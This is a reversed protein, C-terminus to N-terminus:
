QRLKKKIEALTQALRRFAAMNRRMESAPGAPTGLWVEGAPIDNMVGGQAAVSAGDGITIGDAIGVGGGLVVGDGLTVSGSIAAHGCIVCCRGIRCNHGIQVHNDLKSGAGVVTSGITARDVCSNAGVEVDDHLVVNGIQPVKALGGKGDPRFGFGDAGITAGSHLLCRKGVICRELVRSQPQLLSGEGVSAGAGVHVAAVLTAGAAVTAGSEVVCMPGVHALTHVHAASYIVASPHVGPPRTPSPPAFLHLVAIFALDADPVLLLARGPEEIAFAAAHKRSVIAVSAKGAQWRKAFSEARYFTISGVAAAEAPSVREVPASTEGRVEVEIGVRGLAAAISSATYPTTPM